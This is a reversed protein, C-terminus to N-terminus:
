LPFPSLTERLFNQVAGDMVIAGTHRDSSKILTEKSRGVIIVFRVGGAGGEGEPLPIPHPSIVLSAMM